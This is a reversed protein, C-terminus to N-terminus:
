PPPLSVRSGELVDVATVSFFGYIPQVRGDINQLTSCTWEYTEEDDGYIEGDVSGCQCNATPACPFGVHAPLAAQKADFALEQATRVRPLCACPTSKYPGTRAAEWADIKNKIDARAEAFTSFTAITRVGGVDFSSAFAKAAM